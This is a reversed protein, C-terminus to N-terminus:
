ILDTQQHGPEKMIEVGSWDEVIFNLTDIYDYKMGDIMVIVVVVAM